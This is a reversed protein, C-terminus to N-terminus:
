LSAGEVHPAREFVVLKRDDGHAQHEHSVAFGERVMIEAFLRAPELPGSRVKTRAIFTCACRAALDVAVREAIAPGKAGYIHGWVAMFIIIDYSPALVNRVKRTRTLDLVDFRHPITGFGRFISRATAIHRPFYDIGHIFAPGLKAIEYAVIGVNCGADLISKGRFDVGCDFLGDLRYAWDGTFSANRYGFLGMRGRPPRAQWLM